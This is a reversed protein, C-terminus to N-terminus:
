YYGRLNNNLRGATMSSSSDILSQRKWNAGAPYGHKRHGRNSRYRWSCAWAVRPVQKLIRPRRYRITDSGTPRNCLSSDSSRRRPWRGSGPVRCVPSRCCWPIDTSLISNRFCTELSARRTWAGHSPFAFADQDGLFPASHFTCGSFPTATSWPADHFKSQFIPLAPLLLPLIWYRILNPQHKQKQIASPQTADNNEPMGVTARRAKM